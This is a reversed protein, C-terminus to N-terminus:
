ATAAAASRTREKRVLDMVTESARAGKGLWEEVKPMDLDVKRPTTKPDYHGVIALVRGQTTKRSDSVVVRFFPRGKSGARRLRIMLM